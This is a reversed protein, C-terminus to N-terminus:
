PRKGMIRPESRSPAAESSGLFARCSEYVILRRGCILKSRLEGMKILKYSSTKGLGSLRCFERVTITLPESM